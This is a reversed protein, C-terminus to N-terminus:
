GLPLRALVAAGQGGELMGGTALAYLARHNPAMAVATSGELGPVDILRAAPQSPLLRGPPPLAALGRAHTAAYITGDAALCFDDVGFPMAAHLSVEGQVAVGNPRLTLRQLQRSASNSLLLAEGARKIGNIGPVSRSPDPRLAHHRYWVDCRETGLDVAWIVGEASDAVLLMGAALLMMGNPHVAEPLAIRQVVAGQADILMIESKGRMAAAGVTFPVGHVLVAIRGFGVIALSVPHGPVPVSGGLGLSPSWAEVSRATYNTFRVLGAQTVILNELFIGNPFRALIEPQLAAKIAAPAATTVAALGIGVLSRRPLPMASRLGSDTVVYANMYM